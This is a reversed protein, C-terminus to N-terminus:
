RLLFYGILIVAGALISFAYNRVLGTQLGNLGRGAWGAVSAL